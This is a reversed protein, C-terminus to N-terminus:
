SRAPSASRTSISSSWRCSAAQVLPGGHWLRNFTGKGFVDFGDWCFSHWYCVAFRLHEEMTKGMVVRNKDYFSYSLPNASNPGEFKIPAFDKFHTAAM